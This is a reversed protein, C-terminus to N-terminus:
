TFQLEQSDLFAGFRMERSREGRCRVTVQM